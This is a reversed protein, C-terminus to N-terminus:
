IRLWSMPILDSTNISPDNFWRNPAIVIKNPNQNLWAGWWSFSSNAIINHKCRSMLYMEEHDPTGQSLEVFVPQEIFYLNGKAWTLDDSFIYFKSEPYHNKIVAVSARYYDLSCEGHYNKTIPNNVYDGRRIHLSVSCTSHILDKYRASSTSLTKKLKFDNHIIDQFDIFYRESQWYGFLYIDGKIKSIDPDFHYHKEKFCKKNIFIERNLMKQTLKNIWHWKGEKLLKIEHISAIEAKINFDDLEYKRLAYTKFGSIDLKLNQQARLAIARGVAYQFMQNGLGGFINTIIM